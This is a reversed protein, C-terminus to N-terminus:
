DKAQPHLLLYHELKDQIFSILEIDSATKLFDENISMFAIFDEFENSSLQIVDYSVYLRLLEQVIAVKSDEYQLEAVRAKSQEKKSFRQYLATIPSQIAEIGTITRTERLALSAREEKIQQVTKLPRIIVEAIEKPKPATGYLCVFQCLSDPVVRFGIRDYGKISLVISDNPNVYVAFTGDPQGFVGLGTNMNVVM